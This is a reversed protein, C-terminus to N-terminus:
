MALFGGDVLLATGTIYSADDSLLFAVESPQGCRCGSDSKEIVWRLSATHFGSAVPTWAAAYLCSASNCHIAFSNKATIMSPTMTAGARANVVPIFVALVSVFLLIM